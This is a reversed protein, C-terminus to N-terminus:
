TGDQVTRKWSTAGLFFNSFWGWWLKLGWDLIGGEYEGHFKGCSFVHCRARSELSFQSIKAEATENCYVRMVSLCVSSLRCIMVIFM